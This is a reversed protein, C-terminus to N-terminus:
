LAQGGLSIDSTTALVKVVRCDISVLSVDLTGGGIDIVLILRMGYFHDLDPCTLSDNCVLLSRTHKMGHALAASTPEDVVRIVNLGVLGGAFKMAQRQAESFAAPVAVVAGAVEEELFDEAINRMENLVLATTAYDSELFPWMEQNKIVDSTELMVREFRKDSWHLGLLHKFGTITSNPRQTSEQRATEGVLIGDGNFAVYTPTQYHGHVNPIVVMTGNRIIGVRSYSSGFDIGIVTGVKDEAKILCVFLSVSVVFFSLFAMVAWNLRSVMVESRKAMRLLLQIGYSWM